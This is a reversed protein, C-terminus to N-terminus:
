RLRMGPTSAPSSTRHKVSASTQLAKSGPLTVSHLGSGCAKRGGSSFSLTRCTVSGVLKLTARKSSSPEVSISRRICASM